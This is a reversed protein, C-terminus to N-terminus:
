LSNWVYVKVTQTGTFIDNAFTREAEGNPLSGKHAFMGTMYGNEDYGIVIVNINNLTRGLTNNFVATVGGEGFSVSTIEVNPNPMFQPKADASVTIETEGTKVFAGGFNLEAYVSATGEAIASAKGDADVSIINPNTSYFKKVASLTDANTGDGYFANIVPYLSEGVAIETRNFSISASAPIELPESGVGVSIVANFETGYYEATVNVFTTGNKVGLITAGDAAAITSDASSLTLSRVNAQTDDSLEVAASLTMSEGPSLKASSASLILKQAGCIVVERDLSVTEEGIKFAANIVATGAKKLVFANESVDIIDSNKSTIALEKAQVENEDSDKISIYSDVNYEEGFHIAEPMSYEAYMGSTLSFDYAKGTPTEFGDAAFTYKDFALADFGYTVTTGNSDPTGDASLAAGGGNLLLQPITEVRQNFTLKISDAGFLNGDTIETDGRYFAAKELELEIDALLKVNAVRIRKDNKQDIIIKIYSANSVTSCYYTMRNWVNSIKETEKKIDAESVATFDGIGEETEPATAFSITGSNRFHEFTQVEFSTVSDLKYIIEATGVGSSLYNVGIVSGIYQELIIGEEAGDLLASVYKGKQNTFNDVLTTDAAVASVSAICMLACLILSLIKKM